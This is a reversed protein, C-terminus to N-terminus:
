QGEGKEGKGHFFFYNLTDKRGRKGPTYFTASGTPDITREEINCCLSQREEGKERSGTQTSGGKKEEKKKKKDRQVPSIQRANREGPWFGLFSGAHLFTKERRLGARRGGRRGKEVSSIDRKGGEGGGKKTPLDRRKMLVNGELPLLSRFQISPIISSPAPGEGRGSELTSPLIQLPRRKFIGPYRSHEVKGGKRGGKDRSESIGNGNRRENTQSAIKIKKGREGGKRRYCMPLFRRSSGRRGGEEEKGGKGGRKKGLDQCSNTAADGGGVKGRSKEEWKKKKKESPPDRSVGGEFGFSPVGGISSFTIALRGNPGENKKGAPFAGRGKPGGGKKGGGRKRPSIYFRERIRETKKGKKKVWNPPEERKEKEKNKQKL